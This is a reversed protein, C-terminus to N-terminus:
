VDEAATDSTLYSLSNAPNGVDENMHFWQGSAISHRPWTGETSVHTFANLKPEGHGSKSDSVQICKESLRAPSGSPHGM